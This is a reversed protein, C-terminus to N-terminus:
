KNGSAQIIRGFTIDERIRWKGTSYDQYIFDKPNSPYCVKNLMECLALLNEYGKKSDGELDYIFREKVENEDYSVTIKFAEDCHLKCLGSMNFYFLPLKDLPELYTVSKKDKDWRALQYNVLIDYYHHLTNADRGYKTLYADRLYNYCEIKPMQDILMVKQLTDTSDDTIYGLDMLVPATYTNWANASGSCSVIVKNFSKKDFFKKPPTTPFLNFSM